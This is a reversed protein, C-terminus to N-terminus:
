PNIQVQDAHIRIATRDESRALLASFDMKTGANLTLTTGNLEADLVHRKKRDKPAITFSRGTPTRGETSALKLKGLWTRVRLLVSGDPEGTFDVRFRGGDFSDAGRFGSLKTIECDLIQALAQIVRDTDATGLCPNGTTPNEGGIGYLALICTGTPQVPFRERLDPSSWLAEAIRFLRPSLEGDHYLVNKLLWASLFASEAGALSEPLEVRLYIPRMRRKENIVAAIRDALALGAAGNVRHSTLNAREDPNACAGCAMCTGETEKGLPFCITEERREGAALARDFRFKRSVSGTIFDLARPCEADYGDVLPGTLTGAKNISTEGGQNELNGSYAERSEGNGTETDKFEAREPRGDLEGSSRLARTLNAVLPGELKLDFLCGAQVAAELGDALAYGGAVLLQDAVYENWDVALRFEFGRTEVSKKVEASIAELVKRDLMLADGGLPTFPMRVLYGFSFITRTGANREARLKELWACFRDFEALDPADEQGSIMYFLKLEKIKERSLRDLLAFLDKDALNKAYYRRLAASIGEVGVTFSRKEAALECALMGPVRILLDARQSMMNVREFIRNLELLLELADTHANFNFSFLDVSSAGTERKLTRAAELIRAKELERYPKREWGEFCFSCFAPCGWSIQLRANSAEESNLLPYSVLGIFGSDPPSKWRGPVIHRPEGGKRPLDPAGKLAGWFAPVQEEVRDIKQENTLREALVRVLDAGGDEGEGFFIGDVFSDGDPFILGQSALANSGGLIIPPWSGTSPNRRASARLPIGSHKFLLGLNVLELAWSCSVLVVDYDHADHGAQMGYLWPLKANDLITRDPKSPFFAFDVFATPGLTSRVLNYLFLHGSSRVADRFPSLRVILFRTRADEWPPNDFGLNQASAYLPATKLRPAIEAIRTRYDAVGCTKQIVAERDIRGLTTM